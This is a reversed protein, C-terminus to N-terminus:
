QLNISNTCSSIMDNIKFSCTSRILPMHINSSTNKTSQGGIGMTVKEQSNSTKAAFCRAVIFSIFDLFINFYQFFILLYFQGLSIRYFSLSHNLILDILLNPSKPLAQNDIIFLSLYCLIKTLSMTILCISMKRPALNTFRTVYFQSRNWPWFYDFPVLLLLVSNIGPKWVKCQIYNKRLSLKNPVSAKFYTKHLFNGNPPM